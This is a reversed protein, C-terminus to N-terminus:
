QSLINQNFFRFCIVRPAGVIRRASITAPQFPYPRHLYRRDVISTLQSKVGAAMIPQGSRRRDKVTGTAQYRDRLRQITSAHCTHYQAVDSVHMGAKLIGSAGSPEHESLRPM